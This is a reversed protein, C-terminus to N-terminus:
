PQKPFRRKVEACQAIWSHVDDPLSVGQDQLAQALKYIADLQDGVSPYAAQRRHGHPERHRIKM